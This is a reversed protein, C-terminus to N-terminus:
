RRAVAAWALASHPFTQPPIGMDAVTFSVTTLPPNFPLFNMKSWGITQVSPRSGPHRNCSGSLESNQSIERRCQTNSM